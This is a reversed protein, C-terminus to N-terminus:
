REPEEGVIKEERLFWRAMGERLPTMEYVLRCRMERGLRVVWAVQEVVITRAEDHEM